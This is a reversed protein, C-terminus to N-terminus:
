ICAASALVVLFVLQVMFNLHRELNIEFWRVWGDVCVCGGSCVVGGMHNARVSECYVHGKHCELFFSSFFLHTTSFLLPFFLEQYTSHMLRTSSSSAYWTIGSTHARTAFAGKREQM